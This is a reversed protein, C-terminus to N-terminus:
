RPAGVPVGSPPGPPCTIRAARAGHVDPKDDADENLNRLAREPDFAGHVGRGWHYVSLHM